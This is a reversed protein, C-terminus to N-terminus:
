KMAHQAGLRVHHPLDRNWSGIGPPALSEAWDASRLRVNAECSRETDQVYSELTRRIEAMVSTTADVETAIETRERELEKTARTLTSMREQIPDLQERVLAADQSVRDRERQLERANRQESALLERMNEVDTRSPGPARQPRLDRLEGLLQEVEARLEDRQRALAAEVREQERLDDLLAQNTEILESIREAIDAVAIM